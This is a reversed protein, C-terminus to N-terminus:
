KAYIAATMSASGTMLIFFVILMRNYDRTSTGRFELSNQITTLM